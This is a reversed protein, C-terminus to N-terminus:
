TEAIVQSLAIAIADAADDPKPIKELHFYDKVFNQIDKKKANGNGLLVKKLRLPAIEAIPINAQAAVLLVVGRAQGVSFATTVNSAFFLMEIAMLDPKIDAILRVMEDYIYSLKQTEPSNPTTEICGYGLLKAKGNVIEILGHGLKGSGPDIGLIRQGEM